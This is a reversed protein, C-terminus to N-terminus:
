LPHISDDELIEDIEAQLGEVSVEGEYKIGNVFFTPTGETGSKVGSDFDNEVHQLLEEDELDNTFKRLDLKLERAIAFIGESGLNEQNAFLANHMEWFKHQKGAAEAAMAAVGANAHHNTLPFHRFIICIDNNTKILEDVVAVAAASDPCEFDAYEVIVISASLKGLHHDTRQPLRKLTTASM